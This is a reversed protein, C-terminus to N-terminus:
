RSGQPLIPLISSKPVEVSKGDNTRIILKDTDRIIIKGEIRRGNRLRFVEPTGAAEAPPIVSAPIKAKAAAPALTTVANPIEGKGHCVPCTLKGEKHCTACAEKGTGGCVKCKGAITAVGNQYEVVEGVHHQNWAQWGSGKKNRFKQWLESPDHGSVKMHEWRGVSLKLCPGSCDVLGDKCKPNSCPIFGTGRCRACKVLPAGANSASSSKASVDEKPMSEKSPAKQSRNEKSEEGFKVPLLSIWGEITGSPPYTHALYWAGCAIVLLQVLKKM